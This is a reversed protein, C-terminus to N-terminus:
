ENPITNQKRNEGSISCASNKDDVVYIILDADNRDQVYYIVWEAENRDDVKYWLFSKIADNGDSVFYVFMDAESRIDTVYIKKSGSRTDSIYVKGAQASLTFM